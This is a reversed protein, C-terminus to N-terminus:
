AVDKLEIMNSPTKWLEELHYYERIPTQMVHVIVSECDLVIWESNEEGELGLVIGGAEKWKAKASYALAKVQRSSDAGAIIITDYLPTQKRVDLVCLNKAKIDELADILIRLSPTATPM